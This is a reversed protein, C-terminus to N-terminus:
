NAQYESQGDRTVLNDDKDGGCEVRRALRAARMEGADGM